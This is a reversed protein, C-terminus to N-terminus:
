RMPLSGVERCGRGALGDRGVRDDRGGQGGMTTKMTGVLGIANAIEAARGMCQPLGIAKGAGNRPIWFDLM